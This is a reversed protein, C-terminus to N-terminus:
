FLQTSQKLKLDIRVDTVAPVTEYQVAQYLGTRGLSTIIRHTANCTSQMRPRRQWESLQNQM